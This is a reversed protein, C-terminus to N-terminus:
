KGLRQEMFAVIHGPTAWDEREFEVDDFQIAFAEEFAVILRVTALSDLLHQDYLRLDLHDRVAETRSVQALVNLVTEATSM